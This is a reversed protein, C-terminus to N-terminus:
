IQMRKCFAIPTYRLQYREQNPVLRDGTRTPDGRCLDLFPLLHKGEKTLFGTDMHVIITIVVM